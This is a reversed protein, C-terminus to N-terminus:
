FYPPEDGLVHIHVVEKGFLFGIIHSSLPLMCSAAAYVDPVIHGLLALLRVFLSRTSHPNIFTTLPASVQDRGEDDFDLGAVGDWSEAM